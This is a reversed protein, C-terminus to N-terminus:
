EQCNTASATLAISGRPATRLARHIFAFAGLDVQTDLQVETALRRPCRAAAHSTVRVTLAGSGSYSREAEAVVEATTPRLRGSAVGPRDRDPEMTAFRAAQGAARELRVKDLMAFPLPAIILLLGLLPLILLGLEVAAAGRERATSTPAPTRM